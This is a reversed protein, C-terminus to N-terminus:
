HAIREGTSLYYVVNKAKLENVITLIKGSM